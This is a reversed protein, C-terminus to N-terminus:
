GHLHQRGCVRLDARLIVQDTCAAVAGRDYAQALGHQLRIVAGTPIAPAHQVDAEDLGMCPAEFREGIIQSAHTPIVDLPHAAQTAGIEFSGGIFVDARLGHDGVIAHAQRLVPQAHLVDPQEAVQQQHSAVDALGTGAGRRHAAMRVDLTLARDADRFLGFESREILQGGLEAERRRSAFPHVGDFRELRHEFALHRGHDIQPAVQHAGHGVAIHDFRGPAIQLEGHVDGGMQVPAVEHM